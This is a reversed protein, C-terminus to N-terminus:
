PGAGMGAVSRPRSARRRSGANVGNDQRGFVSSRAASATADVESLSTPPVVITPARRDRREREVKTNRALDTAASISRAPRRDVDRLERHVTPQAQVAHVDSRRRARRPPRSSKAVSASRWAPSPVGVICQARAQAGARRPAPSSDGIGHRDRGRRARRGLPMDVGYRPSSRSPRGSRRAAGSSRSSSRRRARRPSAAPAQTEPPPSGDNARRQAIVYRQARELLLLTWAFGSNPSLGGARDAVRAREDSSRWAQSCGHGSATATPAGGVRDLRQSRGGPDRAHRRRLAPDRSRGRADPDRLRDPFFTPSIDFYRGLGGAVGAIFRDDSSRHLEKVPTQTETTSM